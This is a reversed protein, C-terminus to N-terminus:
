LLLVHDYTKAFLFSEKVTEEVVGRTVGVTTSSVLRQSKEFPKM